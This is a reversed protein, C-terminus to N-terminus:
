PRAGQRERVKALHAALKVDVAAIHDVLWSYILGKLDFVVASTAGHKAMSEEVERFRREFVRHQAGHTAVMLYASERMLREETSFHDRCYDRLFGLLQGMEAAARGKLMADLLADSRAFLEQHQEDITRHGVAMSPKWSPM